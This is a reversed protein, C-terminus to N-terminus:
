FKIKDKLKMVEDKRKKQEAELIEKQKSRRNLFENYQRNTSNIVDKLNPIHESEIEDLGCQQITLSKQSVTVKRKMNYGRSDWNSDFIEAWESPVSSSLDLVVDYILSNSSIPKTRSENLGKIEVNVFNM